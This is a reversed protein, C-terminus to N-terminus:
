RHCVQLYSSFVYVVQRIEIFNLKVSSLFL